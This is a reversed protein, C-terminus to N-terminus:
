RDVERFDSPTVNLLNGPLNQLFCDDLNVNITGTMDISRAYMTGILNATGNSKLIKGYPNPGMSFISGVLTANSQLQVDGNLVVLVFNKTTCGPDTANLPTARGYTASDLQGLNVSQGVAGGKLDYFLIPNRYNAATGASQLVAPIQSTDTFYFGQEQAATRLMDLEAGTLGSQSFGYTKAVDNMYSTTPYTPDSGAMAAGAQYCTTGSLSGGMVDQDFPYSTNCYGNKHINRNSTTPCGSGNGPVQDDTIISNSHAASPIHYVPDVGQFNLQSRKFVCGSTFLSETLIKGGGGANIQDGYIALPFTFPAISVDQVVSRSGQGGDATGISHIRYEGAQTGPIFTQIKEIWVEYQQGASLTVAASPFADGDVSAPEEGWPNAAGCNPACRLGALGVNRIYAVAQGIGAEADSLAETAQRDRQANQLNRSSMAFVTTALGTLVALVVMTIVLASGADEAATMARVRAMFSPKTTM